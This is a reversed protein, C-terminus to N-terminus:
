DQAADIVGRLGDLMSILTTLQGIRHMAGDLESAIGRGNGAHFGTSIGTPIGPLPRHPLAGRITWLALKARPSARPFNSLGRRLRAM